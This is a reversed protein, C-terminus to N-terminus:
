IWLYYMGKWDKPYHSVWSSCIDLVDAGSPLNKSYYETLASVAFDDIHFVRLM